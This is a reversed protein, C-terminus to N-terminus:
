DARRGRIGLGVAIMAVGTTIVAIGPGPCVLMPVGVLVLAVGAVVSGCSGGRGPQLATPAVDHDAKPEM